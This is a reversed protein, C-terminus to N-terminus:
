RLALLRDHPPVVRVRAPPVAAKTAYRRDMTDRLMPEAILSGNRSVLAAVQPLNARRGRAVVIGIEGSCLEVFSGPPYLGVARLLAGGIEDPVGAATLCAERAATVPSIPPRSARLSIQAAFIDVRRLLRALQREPSLEALPLEADLNEHHLRVVEVSLADAFGCETLLKASREPHTKIEARLDDRIPREDGALQDQLRLMSVNMLLAARGLSDIWEAKWQLLSASLECIILCLLAHRSSYKKTSHAAEYILHYLSADGRKQALERARLHTVMLRQRWDGEPRVDRLVADLRSVLEAWEEPLTQQRAAVAGRVTDEARAQAVVGLQAGLRYRENVAAALRRYWAASESDESFLPQEGLEQMRDANTIRQGAALLLRGTADRLGFPLAEDTRLHEPKFPVLKM